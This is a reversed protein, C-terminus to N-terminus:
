SAVRRRVVGLLGLAGGFLWAAAPIPIAAPGAVIGSGAPLGAFYETATTFVPALPTSFWMISSSWFPDIDVASPTEDFGYMSVTTPNLDTTGDSCNRTGGSGLCPTPAFVSWDLVPLGPALGTIAGLPGASVLGTAPDVFLTSELRGGGTFTAGAGGIFVDYSTIPIFGTNVTQYMYVFDTPSVGAGGLADLTGGPVAGALPFGQILFDAGSVVAYSITASGGGGTPIVTSGTIIPVIPIAQASAGLLAASLGLASIVNRSSVNM